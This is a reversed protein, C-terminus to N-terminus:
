RGLENTEDFIEKLFEVYDELVQVKELFLSTFEVKWEPAQSSFSEKVISSDLKELSNSILDITLKKLHQGNVWKLKKLMM